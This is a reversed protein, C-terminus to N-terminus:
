HNNKRNKFWSKKIGYFCWGLYHPIWKWMKFNSVGKERDRWSAPVETLKYGLVYAKMTLELNVEFGVKSEISIEELFKKSYMKFGNTMDHLPIRILFQMMISATRSLFFKFKDGGEVEGGKMYRSGAILDYGKQLEFYMSNITSLSDSLDAMTFVMGEHTSCEVGTKFANLAGSGYHNKEINIQFPYKNEIQRLVPLTTDEENDYVIIVEHEVKVEDAISDLLMEINEAENYVPIFIDIM